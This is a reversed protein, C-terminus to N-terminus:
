GVDDAPTGLENQLYKFFKDREYKLARRLSIVRIIDNDRETFVLLVVLDRLIGIALFRFEGYDHRNDTEILMPNQFVEWADFFDLDHKRINIKNKSEDWEFNM